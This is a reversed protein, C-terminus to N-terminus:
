LNDESVVSVVILVLPWVIVAVGIAITLLRLWRPDTRNARSCALANAVWCAALAIGALLGAAVDGLSNRFSYGLEAIALSGILGRLWFIVWRRATKSAQAMRVIGAVTGAVGILMPIPLFPGTVVTVAAVVTFLRLWRPDRGDPESSQLAVGIWYASLATGVLLGPVVEGLRGPLFHALEAV